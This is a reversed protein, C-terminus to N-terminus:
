RLNQIIERLVHNTDRPESYTSFDVFGETPRCFFHALGIPWERANIKAKIKLINPQNLMEQQQPVPLDKKITKGVDLEHTSTMPGTKLRVQDADILDKQALAKIASNLDVVPGVGDLFPNDVITEHVDKESLPPSESKIHRERFEAALDRHLKVFRVLCFQDIMQVIVPWLHPVPLEEFPDRLYVTYRATTLYVDTRQSSGPIIPPTTVRPLPTLGPFLTEPLDQLGAAHTHLYVHQKCTHFQTAVFRSMARYDRESALTEIIQKKQGSFAPWAEKLQKQPFLNLLRELMIKEADKLM